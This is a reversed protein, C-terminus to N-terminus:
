PTCGSPDKSFAPDRKPMVLTLLHCGESGSVIHPFPEDASVYLSESSGLVYPASDTSGSLVFLFVGAGTTIDVPTLLTDAPMEISLVELGDEARPILVSVRAVPLVMLTETAAIDVQKSTAHRMPGKPWSAKGARADAVRVAGSEHVTRLTFYKLGDPGAALPGYGTYASAYHVVVPALTRVGIRGKGEIFIQFQNNHHFHASLTTDGPQEYLFVTPSFQSDEGTEMWESKYAIQGGPYARERRSAEGTAGM